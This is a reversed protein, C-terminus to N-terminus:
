SSAGSRILRVGRSALYRHISATTVTCFRGPTDARELRRAALLNFVTRRSCGLLRAAEDVMVVDRSLLDQGRYQAIEEKVIRRVLAVLDNTTASM